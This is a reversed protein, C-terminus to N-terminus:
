YTTSFALVVEGVDDRGLFVLAECSVADADETNDSPPDDGAGADGVIHLGDNAHYLERVRAVLVFQPM